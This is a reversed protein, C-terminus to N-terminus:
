EAYGACADRAGRRRDREEERVRLAGREVEARAFAIRSGGRVGERTLPRVVLHEPTQRLIAIGHPQERMHRRVIDRAIHETDHLRM